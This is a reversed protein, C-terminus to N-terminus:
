LLHAFNKAPRLEGGRRALVAVLRGAENVAAHEEADSGREGLAIFQGHALRAIEAESVTIAPLEGLATQPPLLHEEIRSADPLEELAIARDVSFPGVATRQLNEMVAATGLAEALDRGLSRIYTGSGCAVDLVLRPYDYEILSLSFVEVERPQVDVPKGARALKYARRGGVKLASFAPPRQQIKGVFKPLVADIQARSPQPADPLPEVRGEVDETDSKRGLLFTALYQKRSRQVYEILKTAPGVCLVLVGTALPDLTGAHGVKHPRIRRQVHNVVDRSTVGAPKNINLIGFM